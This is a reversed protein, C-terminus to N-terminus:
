LLVVQLRLQGRFRRQFYLAANVLSILVPVEAIPGIAAAFVVRSHIFFVAAAVAIALEFNKRTAKFSPPSAKPYGAGARHAIWFCIFFM